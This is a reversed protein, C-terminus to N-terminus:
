ALGPLIAGELALLRDKVDIGGGYGALKGDAGIVRHCPIVIPIPNVANARGVARAGAPRGLEVALSGYTRTHGYPIRLLADWVRKRFGAGRPRLPLSFERLEGRFYADLQAVVDACAAASWAVDDGSARIGAALAEEPGAAHFDIRVLRREDDVAALLPGIPTDFRHALLKM